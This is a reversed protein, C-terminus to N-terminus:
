VSMDIAAFESKRNGASPGRLGFSEGVLDPTGIEIGDQLTYVLVLALADITFHSGGHVSVNVITRLPCSRNELTNEAWSLGLTEVVTAPSDDVHPARDLGDRSIGQAEAICRRYQVVVEHRDISLYRWFPSIWAFFMQCVSLGLHVVHFGIRLMAPIESRIHLRILNEENGNEVCVLGDIAIGTTTDM